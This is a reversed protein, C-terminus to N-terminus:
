RPLIGSVADVLYHGPHPPFDLRPGDPDPGPGGTGQGPRDGSPHDPEHGPPDDPRTSPPHPTTPRPTRKDVPPPPTDQHPPRSETTTQPTHGPTAAITADTRADTRTAHGTTHRLTARLDAIGDRLRDAAAPEDVRSTLEDAHALLRTADPYRGQDLATRADRLALDANQTAARSEALHGYVLRTVPWLPSDPGAQAAATIGAAALLVTAATATVARSMRRRRTRPAAVAATVAALLRDDTPGASPMTVRWGSLLREAEDDDAHEGRGLRDLLHDEDDRRPNDPPLRVSM